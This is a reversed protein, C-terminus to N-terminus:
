LGVENNAGALRAKKSQDYIDRERLSNHLPIVPRELVRFLGHQNNGM